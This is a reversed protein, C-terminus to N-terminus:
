PIPFGNSGKVDDVGELTGAAGEVTETSLNNGQRKSDNHEMSKKARTLTCSTHYVGNWIKHYARLDPM